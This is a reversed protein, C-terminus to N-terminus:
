HDSDQYYFCDHLNLETSEMEMVRGYEDFCAKCTFKGQRDLCKKSVEKGCQQCYVPKSKM